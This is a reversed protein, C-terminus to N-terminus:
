YGFASKQCCVDSMLCASLHRQRQRQMSAGSARFLCEAGSNLFLNLLLNLVSVTHGSMHIMLATHVLWGGGRALSAIASAAPPRAAAAAPRRPRARDSVVVLSQGVAESV